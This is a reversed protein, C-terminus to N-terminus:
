FPSNLHLRRPIAIKPLNTIEHNFTDNELRLLSFMKSIDTSTPNSQNCGSRWVIINEAVHGFSTRASAPSKWFSAAKRFTPESSKAALWLMVWTLEVSKCPSPPRKKQIQSFMKQADFNSHHFARVEYICFWMKHSMEFLSIWFLGFFKKTSLITKM